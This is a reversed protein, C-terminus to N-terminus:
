IKRLIEFKDFNDIKKFNEKIVSFVKEIKPADNDIIVLDSKKINGIEENLHKPSYTLHFWAVYKNTTKRKSLAFIWPKDTYIYINNYGLYNNKLFDSFNMTERVGEGNGWWFKNKFYANNLIYGRFFSQYYNKPNAYIGIRGGRKLAFFMPILLFFIALFILLKNKKTGEKIYQIILALLFSISPLIQIFYHGYNKSSLLSAFFQVVFLNISLYVFKSIKKKIFFYASLLIISFLSFSQLYLTPMEINLLNVRNAENLSYIRNFVINAYIFDNLTKKSWFYFLTLILPVLFGLAVKLYSIFVFKKNKEELYIILFPILILVLEIFGPVKTILSFFMLFGTLFFNKKTLLLWFALSNFFIFIVEANLINGELIPSGLILSLFLLACFMPLRNIKSNKLTLYVFLLTLIGFIINLGRLLIFGWEWGIITGIYFLSFIFPPKHDWIQAYLTKGQNIGQAVAAYIAEDGYWYSEFLSPVRLLIFILFPLIFLLLHKQKM